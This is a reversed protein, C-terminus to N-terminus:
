GGFPEIIDLVQMGCQAVPCVTMGKSCLVCVVQHRCPYCIVECPKSRCVVCKEKDTIVRRVRELERQLEGELSCLAERPMSGIASSLPYERHRERLKELIEAKANSIRSASAKEEKNKQRKAKAEHARLCARSQQTLVSLRLDIQSPTCIPVGNQRMERIWQAYEAEQIPSNSISNLQVYNPQSSPRSPLEIDFHLDTTTNDWTFGDYPELRRVGRLVACHYDNTSRPNPTADSASSDTLEILVRVFCGSCYDNVVREDQDLLRVLTTRFLQIRCIEACSPIPTSDRASRQGSM